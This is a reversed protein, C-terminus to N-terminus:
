VTLRERNERAIVACAGRGFKELPMMANELASNGSAVHVVGVGDFGKVAKISPHHPGACLSVFTRV